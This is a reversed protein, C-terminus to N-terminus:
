EEIPPDVYAEILEFTVPIFKDSSMEYERKIIFFNKGNIHIKHKNTIKKLHLATLLITATIKIKDKLYWEAMKRHYKYYVGFQDTENILLSIGAALDGYSNYYNNSLQRYTHATTYLTPQLGLDIMLRPAAKLDNDTLLPVVWHRKQIYENTYNFHENWYHEIGIELPKVDVKISHIERETDDVKATSLANTKQTCQIVYHTQEQNATDPIGKATRTLEYVANPMGWIKYNKTIEPTLTLNIINLYANAFTGMSPVPTEVNIEETKEEGYTLNYIKGEEYSIIPKGIVFESLNIIEETTLLDNNYEFTTTKGIFATMGFLSLIQKLFENFPYDQMFSKHQVKNLASGAAPTYDDVLPFVAVENFREDAHSKMFCFNDVNFNIHSFNVVVIKRLEADVAFPNVEMTDDFFYSILYHLYPFPIIPFICESRWTGGLYSKSPFNWKDSDIPNYYNIYMRLANKLGWSAESGDWATNKIRVPATVFNEPDSVSNSVALKYDDYKPHAYLLLDKDADMLGHDLEDFDIQNMKKKANEPLYANIFQLKITDEVSLVKVEGEMVVSGFHWIDMKYKMFIKNTTVRDPFKFFLLNDPTRDVEFAITHPVPIRDNLFLPNEDIFRMTFGDPLQLSYSKNLIIQLM